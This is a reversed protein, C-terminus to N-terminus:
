AAREDSVGEPISGLLRALADRVHDPVRTATDPNEVGPSEPM